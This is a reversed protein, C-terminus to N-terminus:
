EIGMIERFNNPTVMVAPVATEQPVDEGNILSMLLNISGEGIAVSSFYPAAKLATDDGRNIWEEAAMYGGLGTVIADQDLGMTELARLAGVNGPENGGMVLWTTIQPNATIVASASVNGRDATGDHDASFVRGEDFDPVLSMFMSMMGETRPVVSSVTDMTMLLIGVSEDTAMDNELVYEAMWKGVAEGIVFGDIGIWPAIKNGDGDQLADDTAIVPINADALMDVIVQSMAQDVICTVIGTANNAIANSIANLFEEPDMRADVFIFEGGLSEVANRAAEGQDIFWTQDGAKYIGYVVLREGDNTNSTTTYETSGKREETEDSNCAVLPMVIFAILVLLAIMKRLKM